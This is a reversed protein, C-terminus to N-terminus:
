SENLRKWNLRDEAIVLFYIILARQINTCAWYFVGFSSSRLKLYDKNTIVMPEESQM